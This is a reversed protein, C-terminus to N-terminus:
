SVHVYKPRGLGLMRNLAAAALAVATAVTQDTRSRLAVGIVREYRGISAEAKARLNYGSAKQRVMRSRQAIMQLHGDRQTPRNRGPREGGRGSV